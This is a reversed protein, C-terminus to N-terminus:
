AAKSTEYDHNAAHETDAGFGRRTMTGWSTDRWAASVLGRLRWWVTLQRYGFSELFSLGILQAVERFTRYRFYTLEQLVVAMMSILSGLVIALTIFAVIYTPSGWGAILTAAFAVYGAMEIVPGLLEVIVYYPFAVM